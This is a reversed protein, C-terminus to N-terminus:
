TPDIDWAQIGVLAFIFYIQEPANLFEELRESVTALRFYM